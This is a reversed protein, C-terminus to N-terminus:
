GKTFPKGGNGTCREGVNAGQRFVALFKGAGDDIGDLVRVEVGRKANCM